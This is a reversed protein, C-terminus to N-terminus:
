LFCMMMWLAGVILAPRRGCKKVVYLGGFTCVVNVSGLIVQTVYSNNLGTAQFVTTGYYFFFNAGTLQQGSQLMIGLGLRYLMRPGTFIEYWKTDSGQKEEEVKERIEDIEINVSEADPTVGALRAITARAEDERGKRFAYRPSEPLFLIGGGLILAWAFGLGNPIRWAASSDISETGYNVMNSTWIGLTVFLQYTSIIVGRILAPSSESQYMPVAVSLAGIGVGDVLRGVAFQVWTNSSSIQIVIGICSFFAASSITLRRGIIDALKGAALCGILCGVSLLGVITGQRAASFYRTGDANVEGFRELYDQM